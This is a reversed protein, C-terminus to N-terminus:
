KKILKIEFVAPWLKGTVLLRGDETVAIGNLVDAYPNPKPAQALLGNLNVFSNITGTEPDIRAIFNTQWINAWIEGKIWELENLNEVPRGKYTVTITKEIAQTQPDLYTITASGNSLILSTDNRTLGWGMGKYSWSKELSFDDLSWVFGREAHWTVGILKDQWDVIGEGFVKGPHRRSQIVKGTELEVKRITSRGVRGTSEYLFGDKYFLGQTFAQSDHPFINVIEYGYVPADNASEDAVAHTLVLLISSLFLM